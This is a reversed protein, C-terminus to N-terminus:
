LWSLFPNDNKQIHKMNEQLQQLIRDSLNFCCMGESDQCGHGPALLLF